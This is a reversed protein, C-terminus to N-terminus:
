KIIIYIIYIILKYFSGNFNYLSDLLILALFYISLSLLNYFSLYDILLDTM